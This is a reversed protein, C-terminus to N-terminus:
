RSNSGGSAGSQSTTKTFEALVLYTQILTPPAAVETGGLMAAIELANAPGQGINHNNAVAYTEEPDKAIQRIRDVWPELEEVSYLHDYRERV